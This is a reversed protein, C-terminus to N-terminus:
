FIYLYQFFSKSNKEEQLLSDTDSFLQKLSDEKVPRGFVKISRLCPSSSNLTTLITVRIACASNLYALNKSGFFCRNVGSSTSMNTTNSAQRHAFEFVHGTTTKNNQSTIRAVKLFNTESLYKERDSEFMEAPQISTSLEFGNSMQSNVKADIVVSDIKIQGNFVIFIKIPTRIFTEAAFGRNELSFEDNSILKNLLNM